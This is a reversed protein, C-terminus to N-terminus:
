ARPRPRRWPISHSLRCPSRFPLSVTPDSSASLIRAWARTSASQDPRLDAHMTQGAGPGCSRSLKFLVASSNSPDGGPMVEIRISGSETFKIANSVLNLLVQRLRLPDGRTSRPVANGFVAKLELGKARARPAVNSRLDFIVEEVQM